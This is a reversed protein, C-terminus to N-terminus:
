GDLEPDWVSAPSSATVREAWRRWTAAPKMVGRVRGAWFALTNWVRRRPIGRLLGRRRSWIAPSSNSFKQREGYRDIPSGSKSVEHEGSM